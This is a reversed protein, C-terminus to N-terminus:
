KKAAFRRLHVPYAEPDSHTLAKYGAKKLRFGRRYREPIKTFGDGDVAVVGGRSLVLRPMTDAIREQTHHLTAYDYVGNCCDTGLYIARLVKLQGRSIADSM